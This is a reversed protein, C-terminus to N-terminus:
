LPTARERAATAVAAFPRFCLAPHPSGALVPSIPGRARCAEARGLRRSGRPAHRWAVRLPPLPRLARRPSTTGATRQAMRACSHGRGPCRRLTRTSPSSTRPERSPLPSPWRKTGEGPTARSWPARVSWCGGSSPCRRSPPPRTRSKAHAAGWASPTPGRGSGPLAGPSAAPEWSRRRTQGDLVGSAGDLAERRAEPRSVLCPTLEDPKLRSLGRRLTAPSPSGQPWAFGQPCWDAQAPGEEDMEEWGEAGSRVAGLALVCLACWPPRAPARRPARGHAGSDFWRAAAPAAIARGEGLHSDVSM